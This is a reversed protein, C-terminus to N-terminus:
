LKKHENRRTNILDKVKGGDSGFDLLANKARERKEPIDKYIEDIKELTGRAVAHAAEAKEAAPTLAVKSRKLNGDADFYRFCLSVTM